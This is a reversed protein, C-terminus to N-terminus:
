CNRLQKFVFLFGQEIKKFTETLSFGLQNMARFNLAVKETLKNEPNSEQIAWM